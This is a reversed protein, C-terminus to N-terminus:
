FTINLGVTVTRPIFVNLNTASGTGQEPDFPLNKDKVWTFLNTGRVYFNASTIKAKALVEKPITYGVQLERLRVFDGDNLYFTSSSQFNKNGNYIYKPIDTVDGPKMWRNMQRAVKNYVAGFGSGLYYSGWTDYVKNGYNYYFSVQLYFGKFNVSTALSGFYKPQANGSIVRAAVGPYANTTSGRKDDAYWLPDGNAADVGAWERLFFSNLAVGQRILFSGNVIDNGDPLSLVKNKNNAFNFDIDWRTNKTQVPIVNLTLEFGKNEM